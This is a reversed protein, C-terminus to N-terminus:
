RDPPESYGNAFASRPVNRLQDELWRQASDDTEILEPKLPRVPHAHQLRIEFGERLLRQLDDSSLLARVRGKPDPVLDVSLHDMWDPDRAKRGPHITAEFRVRRPPPEPAAPEVELGPDLPGLLCFSPVPGLNQPVARSKGFRHLGLDKELLEGVSKKRGPRKTKISKEARKM